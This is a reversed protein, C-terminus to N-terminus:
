ALDEALATAQAPSLTAEHRYHPHDVVLRIQGSQGLGPWLRRHAQELPFVVYQVSSIRDEGMQRTDFRGAVPPLDGVRLWVHKELGLLHPLNAARQAADEYELLLTAALSGGPPVLENYTDVEHQIAERQSIREVRVMEQIQYLVTLHNEFLFTFHPGVAVRRREKEAMVKQRFAPRVQEYPAVDLVESLQVPQQM